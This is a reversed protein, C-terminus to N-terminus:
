WPKLDPLFDDNKLRKKPFPFNISAGRNRERQSRSRRAENREFFLVTEKRKSSM